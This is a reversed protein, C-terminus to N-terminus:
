AVAEVVGDARFHVARDHWAVPGPALGAAARLMAGALNARALRRLGVYSTTLRPNIEIVQDAGGDEAAGLVLDVGVYGTLGDVAAVARAGLDCARWALPGPLPVRGGLYRFRGDSSLLQETPLLGERGGAGALFAVSAALGPVFPQLVVDCPGAEGRAQALSERLGDPRSVLITAQSGAGCRPKCVAPFPLLSEQDQGGGPRPTLLTTVPTAVGREHLHRALALKDACLRVAEPSSGLLRGGADLVWRCRTELIDDTEPAIVLTWDAAGALRRFDAEESGAHRHLRSCGFAGGDRDPALLTCAVVGPIEEFDRAVASLMARGEARLSAPLGPGPAACTYEYVFVLM